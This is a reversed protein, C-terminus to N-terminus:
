RFTATLTRRIGQEWILLDPTGDLPNVTETDQRKEIPFTLHVM